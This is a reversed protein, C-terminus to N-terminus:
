GPVKVPFRAAKNKLDYEGGSHLYAATVNHKVAVEDMFKAAMQDIDHELGNHHSGTVHIIIVCNGM